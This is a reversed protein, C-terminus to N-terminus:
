RTREEILKKLQSIKEQFFSMTVVDRSQGTAQGLRQIRQETEAFSGDLDNNLRVLYDRLAKIDAANNGTLIPPTERM